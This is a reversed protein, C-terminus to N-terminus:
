RGRDEGRADAAGPAHGPSLHLSYRPVLSPTYVHTALLTCGSVQRLLQSVVKVQQGRTLLYGLPVGTVRAMEVNNVLVM